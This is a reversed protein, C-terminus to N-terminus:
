FRMCIAGRLILVKDPNLKLWGGCVQKQTCKLGAIKYIDMEARRTSVYCMSGIFICHQFPTLVFLNCLSYVIM